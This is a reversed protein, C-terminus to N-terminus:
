EHGGGLLKPTIRYCRVNGMIPLREKRTYNAGDMMLHGHESLLRAVAKYDFGKCVEQRFTEPLVYFEAEKAREGDDYIPQGSEDSADRYKRFGARNVTKPAHDDTAREWDVFRADGHLEFFQRVQSLMAAAEQNGAGGRQSLWATFCIEAARMAEGLNWGTIKWATAIEGAAGWWPLACPPATRKAARM